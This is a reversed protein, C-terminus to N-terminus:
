AHIASERLGLLPAQFSSRAAVIDSWFTSEGFGTVQYKFTLIRSNRRLNATLLSVRQNSYQAFDSPDPSMALLHRTRRPRHGLSLGQPM